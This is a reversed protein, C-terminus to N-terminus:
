AGAAAARGRPDRDRGRALSSVVAAHAPPFLQSGIGLLVAAAGFGWSGPILLMLTLGAARVALATAVVAQPAGADLWRGAFPLTVLGAVFGLSLALGAAPLSMGQVLVAYLLVFPRLM